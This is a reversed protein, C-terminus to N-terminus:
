GFPFFVTHMELFDKPMGVASQETPSLLLGHSSAPTM